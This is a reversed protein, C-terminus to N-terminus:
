RYTFGMHRLKLAGSHSEGPAFDRSIEGTLVIGQGDSISGAPVISGTLEVGNGQGQCTGNRCMQGEPCQEVDGWEMCNDHDFDGCLEFGNNDSACRTQGETCESQCTSAASGCATMCFGLGFILYSMILIATKM